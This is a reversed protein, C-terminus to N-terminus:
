RPSPEEFYRRVAAALQEAFPAFDPLQYVSKRSLLVIPRAVASLRRHSRRPLKAEHAVGIPILADGFEARAMQLAAGFSEVPIIRRAALAPQHDRVLPEIARWTASTPEITILPRRHDARRGLGSHVLVMPEATIPVHVLDRTSAPEATLGMQYRGLRLNEVILVSRHAHLDVALRPLPRLAESVVRPGWSAAISDALALSFTTGRPGAPGPAALERLAAMLPRARELVLTAQSTLRVRRGDRELLPIQLAKSLAQIRKSVASQTLRLRVAAESVTGSQELAALAELGEIM